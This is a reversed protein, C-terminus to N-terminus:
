GYRDFLYGGSKHRGEHQMACSKRALISATTIMSLVLRGLHFRDEHSVIVVIGLVCRLGIVNKDM